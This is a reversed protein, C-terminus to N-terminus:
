PIKSKISKSSINTHGEFAGLDTIAQHLVVTVNKRFLRLFAILIPLPSTQVPNGFMSVEFEIMIHKAKSKRAHNFLSFFSLISGRKWIRRVIMEDEEYSIEEGELKEALVEIKLNPNSAKMGLLTNKAYSAIGVTKKDHISGKSPYSSIVLLQDM